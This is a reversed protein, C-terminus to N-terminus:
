DSLTGNTDWDFATLFNRFVEDPFNAANLTVDASASSYGGILLLVALSAIALFKKRM